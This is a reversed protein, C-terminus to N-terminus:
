IAKGHKYPRTTNYAMKIRVAEDIDIGRAACTDLIRIIADALEIPFGEPKGDGRYYTDFLRNDRLTELAEALESTILMLETSTQRIDTPDTGERFGHDVANNWCERALENLM